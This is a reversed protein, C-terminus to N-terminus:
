KNLESIARIVDPKVLDAGLSSLHDGDQYLSMGDDGTFRIGGDKETFLPEIDIVIVNDGQFRKLFANSETRIAREAPDELFPPRSGNRM